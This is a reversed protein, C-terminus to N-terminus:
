DLPRDIIADPSDVDGTNRTGEPEFLLVSVEAEAVPRHEVGRPIVVMEGPGLELIRDRFEIKLQGEIVLFLEDIDAHLHWVFPGLLKALKVRHDNVAAIVRPSYIETIRQLAANVNIVQM